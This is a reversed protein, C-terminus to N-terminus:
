DETSIIITPTLYSSTYIVISSQFSLALPFPWFTILLGNHTDHNYFQKHRISCGLACPKSPTHQRRIVVNHM